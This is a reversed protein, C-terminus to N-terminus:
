HHQAEGRCEARPGAVEDVHRSRGQIEHCGELRCFTLSTAVVSEHREPYCPACHYPLEAMGGLSVRAARGIPWGARTEQLGRGGSPPPAEARWCVACCNWMRASPRM